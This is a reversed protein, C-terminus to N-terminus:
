QTQLGVAGGLNQNGGGGFLSGVASAANSLGEKAKRGLAAIRSMAARSLEAIKKGINEIGKGINEIGQGISEFFGLKKKFSQEKDESARILRNRYSENISELADNNSVAKQQNLKKQYAAEEEEKQNRGSRLTLEGGTVVGLLLGAGAAAALVPLAAAGGVVAAGVALTTGILGGALQSRVIKKSSVKNRNARESINKGYKDFLLDGAISGVLSGIPGLASGIALGAMSGYSASSRRIASENEANSVAKNSKLLASGILVTSILPDIIRGAIRASKGLISAIPKAKSLVLLGDEGLVKTARNKAARSVARDTQKYLANISRVARDSRTLTGAAKRTATSELISKGLSSTLKRVTNSTSYALRTERTLPQIVDDLLSVVGYDNTEYRLNALEDQSNSGIVSGSVSGLLDGIGGFAANGLISGVLAGRASGIISYASEVEAKSLDKNGILNFSASVITGIDIAPAAIDILASRFGVSLIHNGLRPAKKLLFRTTSTTINDISSTFAKKSLNTKNLLKTGTSSLRTATNKAIANASQMATSNKVLAKSSNALKYLNGKTKNNILSIGNIATGIAAYSVFQAAQKILRTSGKVLNIVSDIPRQLLGQVLGKEAVFARNTRVYTSTGIESTIAEGNSQREQDKKVLNNVVGLPDLTSAIGVALGLTLGIWSNKSVFSSAVGAITGSLASIQTTRADKLEAISSPKKNLDSIKKNAYAGYAIDGVAFVDGLLSNQNDSITFVPNVKKSAELVTAKRYINKTATRGGPRKRINYKFDNDYNVSDALSKRYKIEINHRRIHYDSFKRNYLGVVDGKQHEYMSQFARANASYEDAYIAKINKTDLKGHDFAAYEASEKAMADLTEKFEIPNVKMKGALRTIELEDLRHLNHVNELSHAIEHHTVFLAEDLMNKPTYRGLQARGLISQTSKSLTISSGNFEGDPMWRSGKWSVALSDLTPISKNNSSLVSQVIEDYHSQAASAVTDSVKGRLVLNLYDPIEKRVASFENKYRALTTRNKLTYTLGDDLYSLVSFQTSPGLAGTTFAAATNVALRKLVGSVNGAKLLKFYEPVKTLNVALGILSSQQLYSVFKNKPKDQNKYARRSLIGGIKEGLYTGGIVAGAISLLPNKVSNALIGGIVGGTIDTSTETYAAEYERFVSHRNLNALRADSRRSLLLDTAVLGGYMVKAPSLTNSFKKYGGRLLGTVRDTLMGLAMSGPKLNSGFGRIASFSRNMYGFTSTAAKSNLLELGKRGLYNGVKSNVINGSIYKIDSGFTNVDRQAANYISKSVKFTTNATFGIIKSVKFANNILALDRKGLRKFNEYDIFGKDLARFSRGIFENRFGKTLDLFKGFDEKGKVLAIDILQPVVSLNLVTHKLLRYIGTKKLAKIGMVKVYKSVYQIAKKSNSKIDKIWNLLLNYAGYQLKKAFNTAIALKDVVFATAHSVNSKLTSLISQSTDAYQNAALTKATGSFISLLILDETEPPKSVAASTVMMDTMFQRRQLALRLSNSISYTAGASFDDMIRGGSSGHFYQENLMQQRAGITGGSVSPSVRTPDLTAGGINNIASSINEIQKQKLALDVNGYMWPEKGAWTRKGDEYNFNAFVSSPLLASKVMQVSASDTTMSFHQDKMIPSVINKLFSRFPFTLTKLLLSIPTAILNGVARSAYGLGVNDLIKSTQEVPTSLFNGTAKIFGAEVKRLPEIKKLIQDLGISGIIGAMLAPLGAVGMVTLAGAIAAGTAWYLTSTVLQKGAEKRLYKSESSGGLLILSAEGMEYFSVGEFAWMATLNSASKLGKMGSTIFGESWPATMTKVSRSKIESRTFNENSRKYNLERQKNGYEQFEQISNRGLVHKNWKQNDGVRGAQMDFTGHIPKELRSYFSKFSNSNTFTSNLRMRGLEPSINKFNSSRMGDLEEIVEDFSQELYTHGESLFNNLSADHNVTSVGTMIQFLTVPSNGVTAKYGRTISQDISDIASTRFEAVAAKYADDTGSIASTILKNIESTYNKSFGEYVTKHLKRFNYEVAKSLDTNSLSSKGVRNVDELTMPLKYTKAERNTLDIQFLVTQGSVSLNRTEFRYQNTNIFESTKPQNLKSEKALTEIEDANFNSAVGGIFSETLLVAGLMHFTGVAWTLMSGGPITNVETTWQNLIGKRLLSYSQVVRSRKWDSKAMWSYIEDEVNKTKTSMSPDALDNSLLGLSAKKLYAFPNYLLQSSNSDRMVSDNRKGYTLGLRMHDMTLEQATQWSLNDAYFHRVAVARSLSSSGSLAKAEFGTIGKYTAASTRAARGRVLALAQKLNTAKNAELVKYVEYKVQQNAGSNFALDYATFSLDTMPTAYQTYSGIKNTKFTLGVPGVLNLFADPTDSYLGTAKKTDVIGFTLANFLGQVVGGLGKKDESGKLEETLKNGKIGVGSLLRLTSGIFPIKYISRLQEDSSTQAITYAAARIGYVVMAGLAIRAGISKVAAGPLKKTFRTSRADLNDTPLYSANEFGQEWLAPSAMEGLLYKSFHFKKGKPQRSPKSRLMGETIQNLEKATQTNTKDIKPMWSELVSSYSATTSANKSLMLSRFDEALDESSSFVGTKDLGYGVLATTTILATSQAIPDRQMDEPLYTSEPDTLLSAYMAALVYPAAKRMGRASSKYQAALPMSKLSENTSFWSKVEKYVSSVGVATSYGMQVPISYLFRMSKNAVEFGGLMINTVPKTNSVLDDFEKVIRSNDGFKKVLINKPDADKVAKATLLLGTSAAIFGTGQEFISDEEYMFTTRLIVAGSLLETGRRFIGTAAISAKEILTRDENRTLYEPTAFKKYTSADKKRPGLKIAIPLLPTFGVGTAQMAQVGVGISAKGKMQDLKIVLPLQFFPTTIQTALTYVRHNGATNDTLMNRAFQHGMAADVYNSRVYTSKNKAKDLADMTLKEFRAALVGDGDKLNIGSDSNQSWNMVRAAISAIGKAGIGAIFAGLLAAGKNFKMRSRGTTAEILDAKATTYRNVGSKRPPIVTSGGSETRVKQILSEIHSGYQEVDTIKSILYKPDLSVDNFKPFLIGAAVAGTAQVTLIQTRSLTGTFAFRAVTGNESELDQHAQMQTTLSAGLPKFLYRDALTDAALLVGIKLLNKKVRDVRKRATTGELKYPNASFHEASKTTFLDDNLLISQSNIDSKYKQFRQDSLLNEIDASRTDFINGEVGRLDSLMENTSKSDFNLDPKEIKHVNFIEKLIQQEQNVLNIEGKWASAVKRISAAPNKLLSSAKAYFEDTWKVANEFSVLDRITLNEKPNFEPLKLLDKTAKTWYLMNAPLLSAINDYDVAMKRLQEVGINIFGKKFRGSATAVDAIEPMLKSTDSISQISENFKNFYDGAAGVSYPNIQQLIPVVISDFRASDFTRLIRTLSLQSYGTGLRNSVANPARGDNRMAGQANYVREPAAKKRSTISFEVDLQKFMDDYGHQRELKNMMSADGLGFVLARTAVISKNLKTDTPSFPRLSHDFFDATFKAKLYKLPLDISIYSAMTLAAGSTVAQLQTFIAEAPGTNETPEKGSIGMLKQISGVNKNKREDQREANAEFGFAWDILRGTSIITSGLIGKDPKYLDFGMANNFRNGLGPDSMEKDMQRISNPISGLPLARSTYLDSYLSSTAKEGKKSVFSSFYDQSLQTPYNYMTPTPYAEQPVIQGSGSYLRPVNDYLDVVGYSDLREEIRSVSKRENTFVRHGESTNDFFGM